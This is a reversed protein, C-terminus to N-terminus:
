NRKEPSELKKLKVTWEVPVQAPLYCLKDDCAQYRLVGRVTLAAGAAARERLERSLSVTMAQVLRFPKAYVKVHENLPAFFYDEAPPFVIPHATFSADPELTLSMPIYGTQGPAYVHMTPKPTVDLVLGFREGPAVIEDSASARIEVHPTRVLASGSARGDPGELTALITAATYREQYVAEFFRAVVRGKPDVVFTGPHPIGAATGTATTNLLGYRTITASGADSLLPYEIGYKDAFAKLVDPADYSIAVLGLGRRRINDLNRQLEM